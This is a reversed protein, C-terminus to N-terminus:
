RSTRLGAGVSRKRPWAAYDFRRRGGARSILARARSRTVREEGHMEDTLWGDGWLGLRISESFRGSTLAGVLGELRDQEEEATEDCADCGCSPIPEVFWNGLRVILGPFSTFAITLAGAGAANPMLRVAPNAADLGAFQELEADLGYGEERVVDFDRQLGDLLRQAFGHLPAFREPNTVRSYAEPPPGDMGWRDGMEREGAEYRSWGGPGPNGEQPRDGITVAVACSPTGPVSPRRPWSTLRDLSEPAEGCDGCSAYPPNLGRHLSCCWIGRGSDWWLM